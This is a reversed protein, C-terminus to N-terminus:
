QKIEKKFKKKYRRSSSIPKEIVLCRGREGKGDAIAKTSISYSNNTHVDGVSALPKSSICQQDDKYIAKFSQSNERENHYVNTKKIKM